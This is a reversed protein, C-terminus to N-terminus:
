EGSACQTHPPPQIPAFTPASSKAPPVTTCIEDPIAASTVASYIPFRCPYPCSGIGGCLKGNVTSPPESSHTPQNPNLAPLASSDLASAASANM